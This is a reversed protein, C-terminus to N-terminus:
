LVYELVCALHLRKASCSSTEPYAKDGNLNVFCNEIMKSFLRGEHPGEYGISCVLKQQYFLHLHPFCLRCLSQIDPTFWELM